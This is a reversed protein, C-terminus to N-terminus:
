NKEHLHGEIFSIKSLCITPAYTDARALQCLKNCYSVFLQCDDGVYKINKLDDVVNGKITLNSIFNEITYNKIEFGNGVLTYNGLAPTVHARNVQAFFIAHSSKKIICNLDGDNGAKVSTCRM